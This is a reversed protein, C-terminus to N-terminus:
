QIGQFVSGRGMSADGEAHVAGASLGCALIVAAALRHM